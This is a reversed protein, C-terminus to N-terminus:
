LTRLFNSFTFDLVEDSTIINLLVKATHIYILVASILQFPIKIVSMLTQFTQICFKGEHSELYDM